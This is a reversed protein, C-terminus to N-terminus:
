EEDDEDEADVADKGILEWDGDGNQRYREDRYRNLHARVSAATTGLHTALESPSASGHDRLYHVIGEMSIRTGDRVGGTPSRENLLTARTKRLQALEDFLPQVKALKRELEAIADDIPELIARQRDTLKQM